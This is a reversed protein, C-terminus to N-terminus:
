AILESPPRGTPLHNSICNVSIYPAHLFTEMSSEISRPQLRAYFIHTMYILHRLVVSVHLFFAM